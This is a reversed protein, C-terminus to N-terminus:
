EPMEVTDANIVNDLIPRYPVLSHLRDMLLFGESLYRKKLLETM